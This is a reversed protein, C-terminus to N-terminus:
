PTEKSRAALRSGTCKIWVPRTFELSFRKHDAMVPIQGNVSIMGFRGLCVSCTGQGVKWVRGM